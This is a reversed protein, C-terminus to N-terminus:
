GSITPFGTVTIKGYYEPRVMKKGYRTRMGKVSQFTAPNEWTATMQLPVYPAYVFGADLFNAGKLGMLINPGGNLGLFPDQYITYKNMLTGIVQIGFNSNMPGYSPAVTQIALKNVNMFDGHTTLQALMAGVQPSVVAFNAPARLTATHIKSAMSEMVTVLGRISDLESVTGVGAPVAAPGVTFNYTASFRAGALLDEIIERDLELSIENAMGAILEAEADVGHLARFDDLAEISWSATLKRTIAEIPLMELNSYIGPNRAVQDTNAYLSGNVAPATTAAVLESNYWYTAYIPTGTTPVAGTTNLTWSGTTYNVASGAPTGDGTFGGAGNDIQSKLTGGSTWFFKVAYGKTTNLAHLPLFKFPVRETANTSDNWIAKTGDTDSSDVKVEYDVFESSYYKQFNQILNTGAVASGKTDSYKYEQKFIAGIPATMPQLSVIQPAILNPFVRRLLPFIYKTYPGANASTTSTDENLRSKRLDTAQNELMIALCRRNWPDNIGELMPAWKAMCQKAYSEDLLQSNAGNQSVMNRADM